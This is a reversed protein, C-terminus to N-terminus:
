SSETRLRFSLDASAEFTEHADTCSYSIGIKSVNFMGSCCRGLSRRYTVM